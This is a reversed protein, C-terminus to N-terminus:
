TAPLQVMTFWFSDLARIIQVFQEYALPKKIYCNAKLKYCNMIDDDADSTTLVLVPIHELHKDFRIEALLERGDKGPLNLDLLIFDPRPAGAYKGDRRLFAIAEDGDSVASLNSPVKGEKLVERTLKVDGANDEVLLIEIPRGLEAGTCMTM